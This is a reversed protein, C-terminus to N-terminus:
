SRVLEVVTRGAGVVAVVAATGAAMGAAKGVVTGAAMGAVMGAVQRMGVTDEPAAVVLVPVAATGALEHMLAPLSPPDTPGTSDASGQRSQPSSAAGEAAAAAAAAAVLFVATIRCNITGESAEKPSKSGTRGEPLRFRAVGSSVEM